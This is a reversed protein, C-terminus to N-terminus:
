SLQPQNITDRCRIHKVWKAAMNYVTNVDPPPNTMTKSTMANHIDAKFQTYHGNDLGDFFDMAKNTDDLAPSGQETNAKLM